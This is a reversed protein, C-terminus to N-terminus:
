IISRLFKRGQVLLSAHKWFMKHYKAAQAVLVLIFLGLGKIFGFVRFGLGLVRCSPFPWAEQKAAGRCSSRRLHEACAHRAPM